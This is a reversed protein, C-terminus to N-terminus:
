RAIEFCVDKIILRTRSIIKSVVARALTKTQNKINANM